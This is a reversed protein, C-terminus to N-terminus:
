LTSALPRAATALREVLKRVLSPISQSGTDVIFDAVERYLPDRQDSLEKLRSLPDPVRLLPRNRDNRTRKRLDAPAARLYVVTGRESLLRRNWESLVIGGGTALVINPHRTLEELMRSERARFGSEGEVDFIVAVRVGTVREIEHDTDFFPKGLQRALARGVATKGAGMMGVLFISGQINSSPPTQGSEPEM